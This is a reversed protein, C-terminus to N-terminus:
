ASSETPLAQRSFRFVAKGSIASVMTVRTIHLSKCIAPRFGATRRGFGTPPQNVFDGIDAIHPNEAIGVRQITSSMRM